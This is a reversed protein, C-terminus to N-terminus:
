LALRLTHLQSVSDVRYLISFPPIISVLINVRRVNERTITNLLIYVLIRKIIYSKYEHNISIYFLINKQLVIAVFSPYKFSSKSELVLLYSELQM